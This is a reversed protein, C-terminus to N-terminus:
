RPGAPAGSAGAEPGRTRPPLLGVAAKAQRLTDDALRGAIEAGAALIEEVGAFGSAELERFRARIPMTLTVLAETLEAKLAAYGRGLFREELEPVPRGTAASLLSLLNSLGPRGPGARVERGPDTVAARVKRAIAEPSDLLFLTGRETGGSTSMKRTPRQLDMVRAEPSLVPAPLPFLEAYRRNFRAALERALELHQRQDEGVPVAAARYLLVDAAQLVPYTFLGASASEAEGAKAKFQTMRRLEGVGTLCGLLWALEAHGAVHSQVFLACRAPDLGCAMLLAALRRTDRRLAAPDPAATLAHLDVVCFLCEHEDQAAAWGRIAGLYNGLHKEGTPQIGSFLRAM